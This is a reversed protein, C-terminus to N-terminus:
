IKYEPSKFVNEGMAQKRIEEYVQELYDSSIEDKKRTIFYCNKVKHFLGENTIKYVPQGNINSSCCKNMGKKDLLAQTMGVILNNEIKLNEIVENAKNQRQADNLNNGYKKTIISLIVDWFIDRIYNKM